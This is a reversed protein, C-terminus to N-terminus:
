GSPTLRRLAAVAGVALLVYIVVALLANAAPLVGLALLFLVAGVAIGYALGPTDRLVPAVQRRLWTAPRSPGALWAVAVVVVGLAVIVGAIDTLLETGITWAADAARGTGGRGTAAEVIQAGAVRRVVLIALGAVVIGVGSLLVVSQRRGRALWVATAYLALALVLGVIAVGRLLKAITRATELQDSSIVEIQGAGPPLPTELGLRAGLQSVMPRVDLTVDVRADDDILAVLQSHARRNADTWLQQFRGSRLVRLAAREALDGIAAGARAALADARDPLVDQLRATASPAVVQDALYGALAQQIARDQLLRSSTQVWRDTNLAQRSVWLGFGGAALAITALVVMIRAAAVRSIRV